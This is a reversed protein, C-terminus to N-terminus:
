GKRRPAAGRGPTSDEREDFRMPTIIKFRGTAAAPPPAGPRGHLTPGAPLDSAPDAAAAVVKKAAARAPPRSRAFGDRFRSVYEFNYAADDNGPAVKLVDAYAQIVLDLREITAPRDSTDAQSARFAANAAMLMIEPDNTAAAANGSASPLVRMLERYNTQWYSVTARQRGIDDGISNSPWALRSLVAAPGDIGAEAQYALTALREHADAVRRVLRAQALCVAAAVFLALAVLLGGAATRM